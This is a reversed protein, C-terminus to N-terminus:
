CGVYVTIPIYYLGM